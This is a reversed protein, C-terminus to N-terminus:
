NSENHLVIRSVNSQFFNCTNSYFVNKVCKRLWESIQLHEPSLIAHKTHIMMINVAVIFCKM